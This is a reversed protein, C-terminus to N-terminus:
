RMLIMKKAYSASATVLTYYYVGSAAGSGDWPMSYEGAAVEGKLLTSVEKGLLDFIKLTVYGSSPVDFRILTTPNFPNPYNQHLVYATPRQENVRPKAATSAEYLKQIDQISLAYNYIRIEDLVGEFNYSNNTPLVQGITLDITTQLITGSFLTFADLEGNLYIELDSGGYVVTVYYYTNLALLTKSDLDKIGGSTKV